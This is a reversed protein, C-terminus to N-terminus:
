QWKQTKKASRQQDGGHRVRHKGRAGRADDTLTQTLHPHDVVRDPGAPRTQASRRMESVARCARGSFDWRSPLKLEPKDLGAIALALGKWDEQADRRTRRAAKADAHRGKQHPWAQSQAAPRPKPSRSEPPHQEGCPRLPPLM